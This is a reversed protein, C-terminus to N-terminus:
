LRWLKVREDMGGTAVLTGSPSLAVSTVQTKHATWSVQLEGSAIDWVRVDGEWGGTVIRKGSIGMSLARYFRQPLRTWTKTEWVDVGGQGTFLLSGDDSFELYFKVLGGESYLVHVEDGTQLNWIHVKAGDTAALLQAAESVAVGFGGDKLPLRRIQEAQAWRWVTVAEPSAAYLTQGDGSFKASLIMAEQPGLKAKLEGTAADWVCAYHNFWIGAFLWRSDDSFRLNRALGDSQFVKKGKPVTRVVFKSGGSALLKGNPSFCAAEVEDGAGYDFVRTPPKATPRQVFNEYLKRLTRSKPDRTTKAM